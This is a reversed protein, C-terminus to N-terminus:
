KKPWLKIGLGIAKKAADGTKKMSQDSRDWVKFFLEPKTLLVYGWFGFWAILFVVLLFENM